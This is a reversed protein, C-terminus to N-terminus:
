LRFLRGITSKIFSLAMKMILIIGINTADHSVYNPGDNDDPNNVFNYAHKSARAYFFRHYIVFVFRMIM